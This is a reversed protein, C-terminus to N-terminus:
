LVEGCLRWTFLRVQCVVPGAETRRCQLFVDDFGGVVQITITILTKSPPTCGRMTRCEKFLRCWKRMDGEKMAGEGYVEVIQRNLKRRIFIKETLVRIM